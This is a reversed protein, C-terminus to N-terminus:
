NRCREDIQEQREEADSIIEFFDDLYAEARDRSRRSVSEDDLLAALRDRRQMIHSAAADLKENM